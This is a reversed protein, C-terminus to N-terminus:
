NFLVSKKVVVEYNVARGPSQTSVPPPLRWIFYGDADISLECNAEVSDVDGWPGSLDETRRTLLQISPPIMRATRLCLAGTEYDYFALDDHGNNRVDPDTGALYEMLANRGDGDSDSMALKALSANPHKEMVWGLFGDTNQVDAPLVYVRTQSPKALVMGAGGSDLSVDIYSLEPPSATMDLIVEVTQQGAPITVTTPPQSIFGNEVLNGRYSLTVDLPVTVDGGSRGVLIRGLDASGARMHSAVAISVTPIVPLEVKVTAGPLSSQYGGLPTLEPALREGAAWPRTSLLIDAFASGRGLHVYRLNGTGHAGFIEYDISPNGVGSFLVPVDIAASLDGTRKVRVAASGDANQALIQLSVPTVFSPGGLILTGETVLRGLDSAGWSVGRVLVAQDVFAGSGLRDVRLLTDVRPQNDADRTVSAQLQIFKSPDGFQGQFVRSFDLVDGESESFDMVIDSTAEGSIRFRDRGALGTLINDGGEGSIVDDMLGGTLSDSAEGGIMLNPANMRGRIRLALTNNRNNWTVVEQWRAMQYDHLLFINRAQLNRDYIVLEKINGQLFDRAELDSLSRMAGLTTFTSVPLGNGPRGLYVGGETTSLIAGQPATQFVLHQLEGINQVSGMLSRGSEQIHLTHGRSGSHSGGIKMQMGAHSFLTQEGPTRGTAEYSVMMTYNQLKLRRDDIYFFEQGSFRVNDDETVFPLGAAAGAQYADSGLASRDTWEELEAGPEMSEGVLWVSPNGLWGRAPSFAQIDLDLLYMSNDWAYLDTILLTVTSRVFRSDVALTLRGDLVDRQTFPTGTPLPMGDLYWALGSVDDAVVLEIDEPPSDADVLNIHIGSHSGSMVQLRSEQLVPAYNAELPNTANAFEQKNSWGDGDLDTLADGSFAPDLGYMEEWWDPLGDGDSDPLEIDVKFDFRYEAGRNAYSTAFGTAQGPDLLRVPSGNLSASRMAYITPQSKVSLTMNEDGAPASELVLEERYSFEGSSGVPRLTLTLPIIAQPNKTDVLEIDVTGKYLQYIGGPGLKLVKGYVSIPPESFSEASQVGQSMLVATWCALLGFGVLRGFHRHMVPAVEQSIIMM